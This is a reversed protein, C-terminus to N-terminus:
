GLVLTLALCTVELELPEGLGQLPALDLFCHPQRNPLGFVLWMEQGQGYIKFKAKSPVVHVACTCLLNNSVAVFLMGTVKNVDIKYM